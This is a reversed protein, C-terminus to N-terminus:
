APQPFAAKPRALDNKNESHAAYFWIALNKDPHKGKIAFGFVSLENKVVFVWLPSEAGDDAANRIYYEL